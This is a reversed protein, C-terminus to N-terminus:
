TKIKLTGHDNWVVGVVSPEATPINILKFTKSGDVNYAWTIAYPLTTYGFSTQARATYVVLVNFYEDYLTIKAEPWAGWETEELDIYSFNIGNMVGNLKVWNRAWQGINGNWRKSSPPLPSYDVGLNQTGFATGANATTTQSPSTEDTLELPGSKISGKFISDGAIEMDYFVGGKAKMAFAKITNNAADIKFGSQPFDSDESYNSSQLYGSADLTINQALLEQALLQDVEILSAKIKKADNIITAGDIVVNEANVHIQTASLDIQSAILNAAIADDWLAKVAANSANGKIGYYDTGEVAAYVANVKAETSAAILQARKAADIMVPLNLTLSMQGVAGGGAVLATVAGAQVDILGVLEREMDQVQLLIEDESISISASADRADSDMKAIIDELTLDVPRVQYVNSFRYGQTITDVAAQVTDANAADMREELQESTVADLPIEGPEVTPTNSVLPKYDPIPGSDYMAEDYEQLELSFGNSVRSIRTIVFDSTIETFEGDADLEGFAAVNGAEPQVAESAPWSTAVLLEDTTGTGEVKLPLPTAGNEGAVNVIIGYEKLPDAFTVPSALKLKHLAGYKYEAAKIMTDQSDQSLSPDKIAVRAYPTYYVGEFGIELTATIQRLEDAAMLRRAFKVVQENRTIGTATVEKIISNEDISVPQGNELRTVTYTNEKYTDNRSDIYKVRLADVRRKFTKKNTLKVINNPTYVAVANEQAQDIAVSRRGYIDKYFAVACVDAIHQLESDKKQNQTIINDYMLDNDECYEYFAGFAELDVESDDYRSAPHMPSTLVELAIAAPNRTPHKAVSWEEGDWTRATSTAVINIQTLKQENSDTAKLRLGAVCSYGREREEVNLCAVLGATGGDDLVGAPASSKLPDYIQSQYYYCYVDNKVKSDKAGNSRVRVLVCSQENEELEEYDALSFTKKAVFRLQKTANRTFENSLTQGQSFTFATWTEGGDLSYEPTITVTTSVRDNNDNFEYLGYPFSVCVDVDKANPDLSIVLHEEDGGSVESDRKVEKNIVNSTVKHNLEPLSQFLAGDQRVEFLGEAFVGDTIQYTGTQPATESFEKITTDGIGLKNLVIGKFGGELINFVEQTDGDTGSIKYYPKSFLYPTLFNRGCFYPQSKGTGITNTAGRLFPRNDIDVKNTLKKVKELEEQAREAEERAKYAQEAPQIIFGFPIFFTSVWWPTDTLDAPIQRLTVADGDRLKTDPTAIKGNVILAANEFDVGPFAERASVGAKIEVAEAKNSLTKILNAKM